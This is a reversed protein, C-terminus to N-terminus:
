FTFNLTKGAQWGAKPLSFAPPERWLGATTFQTRLLAGYDKPYNEPFDKKNKSAFSIYYVEGTRDAKRYDPPTLLFANQLSL